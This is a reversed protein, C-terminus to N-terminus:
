SILHLSFIQILSVSFYDISIIKYHTSSNIYKHCSNGIRREFSLHIIQAWNFKRTKLTLSQNQLLLINNQADALSVLENSRTFTIKKATIRCFEHLHFYSHHFFINSFSKNFLLQTTSLFDSCRQTTTQQQYHEVRSYIVWISVDCKYM